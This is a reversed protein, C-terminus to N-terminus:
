IGIEDNQQQASDISRAQRILPDSDNIRPDVVRVGQNAANPHRAPPPPFSWRLGVEGARVRSTACM